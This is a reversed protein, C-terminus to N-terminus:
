PQTEKQPQYQNCIATKKVKFGGLGCHIDKEETWAILFMTSAPHEIKTSRYHQCVSCQRKEPKDQYGQRQKVESQKSM